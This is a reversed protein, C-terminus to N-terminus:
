DLSVKAHQIVTGNLKWGPKIVLLVKQGKGQSEVAEMSAVDFSQGQPDIAELGHDKLRDELQAVVMQLGSDNLQASALRLHELPELLSSVLDLSALRAFKQRDEAQRRVLNQYDAMARTAKAQCQEIVDRNNRYEQYKGFERAIEDVTKYKKLEEPAVWEYASHEESLTVETTTTRCAFTTGLVELEAMQQKGRYTHWVSIHDVIELDTIGTEEAVERRLGTEFDEHQDLRGYVIEWAGKHHDGARKIVLVKGSEAHEIAAGVGVMFRGIGGITKSQM